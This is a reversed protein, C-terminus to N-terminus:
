KVDANVMEPSCIRDPDALFRVPSFHAAAREPVRTGASFAQNWLM